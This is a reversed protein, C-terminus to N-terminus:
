FVIIKQGDGVQSEKSKVALQRHALECEVTGFDRDINLKCLSFVFSHMFLLLLM